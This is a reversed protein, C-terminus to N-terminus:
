KILRLTLYDSRILIAEEREMLYFQAMKYTNGIEYDNDAIQSISLLNHM